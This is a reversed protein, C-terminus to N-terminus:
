PREGELVPSNIIASADIAHGAAALIGLGMPLDPNDLDIYRRVSCDTVVARVGPSQDALIAWKLPGFRDFFAGVSLHRAATISAGEPEPATFVGGAWGWGVGVPIGETVHEIHDWEGSISEIFAADAVIINEVKGSKILAYDM